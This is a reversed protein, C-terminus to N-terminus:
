AVHCQSAVDRMNIAQIGKEMVIKKSVALIDENSTSKKKM